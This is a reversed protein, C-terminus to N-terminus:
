ALVSLYNKLDKFTNDQSRGSLKWQIDSKQPWPVVAAM